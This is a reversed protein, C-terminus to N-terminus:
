EVVSVLADHTVNEPEACAPEAALRDRARDLVRDAIAQGRPLEDIWEQCIRPGDLAPREGCVEHVRVSCAQIGVIPLPDLELERGAQADPLDEADLGAPADVGHIQHVTFSAEDM